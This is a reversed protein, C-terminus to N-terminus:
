AFSDESCSADDDHNTPTMMLCSPLPTATKKKKSHDSPPSALSWGTSSFASAEDSKKSQVSSSEKSKNTSRTDVSSNCGLYHWSSALLENSNDTNKKKHKSSGKHNSNKNIHESLSLGLSSSSKKKPHMSSSLEDDLPHLSPPKKLSGKRPSAIPTTTGKLIPKKRPSTPTEEPRITYLPKASFDNRVGFENYTSSLNIMSHQRQFAASQLTSRSPTTRTSTSNRAHTRAIEGANQNRVTTTSVAMSTSNRRPVVLRESKQRAMIRRPSSPWPTTPLSKDTQYCDDKKNGGLGGSVSNRRTWKPREVTTTKRPSALLAWRESSQKKMSSMARRPSSPPGLEGSSSSTLKSNSNMSARRPSSLLSGWRESPQRNHLLSARRRPSLCQQQEDESSESSGDTGGHGSANHKDGTFSSRRSAMRKLSGIVKM